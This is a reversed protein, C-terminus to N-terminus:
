NMFEWQNQKSISGMHNGKEKKEQALPLLMIKTHTMEVPYNQQQGGRQMTPRKKVNCAWFTFLFEFFGMVPFKLDRWSFRIKLSSAGPLSLGPHPWPGRKWCQLWPFCSLLSFCPTRIEQFVCRDRLKLLDKTFLRWSPFFLPKCLSLLSDFCPKLLERRQGLSPLFCCICVCLVHGPPPLVSFCVPHTGTIVPARDIMLAFHRTNRGAWTLEWVASHCTKGSPHARLPWLCLFGDRSNFQHQSPAPYPQPPSANPTVVAILVSFFSFAMLWRQEGGLM